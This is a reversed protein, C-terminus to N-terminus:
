YLFSSVFNRIHDKFHRLLSSPNAKNWSYIDVGCWLGADAGEVAVNLAQYEYELLKMITGAFHYCNNTTLLYETNAKHIVLALIALQYLYLPNEDTFHLEFIANDTENRMRSPLPGIRDDASAACTIDLSSTSSTSSISSISLNSPPHINADNPSDGAMREIVLHSTKNHVDVVAISIYEHHSLAKIKYAITHKVRWEKLHKIGDCKKMAALKECYSAIHEPFKPLVEPVITSSTKTGMITHLFTLLSPKLKDFMTVVNSPDPLAQPLLALIGCTQVARLVLLLSV